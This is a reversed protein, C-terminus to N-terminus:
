PNYIGGLIVSRNAGTVEPLNGPLRNVTQRALWAFAMAEVWDPHISLSETTKSPNGSLQDIREMLYDNKTGGGCVYIHTKKSSLAKVATTISQATLEALTAQIDETTAQPTFSGLISQLWEPSFYDTGTSKPPSLAFFPDTLFLELLSLNIKGSRAWEGNHDYTKGHHTEIWFDMLTNGPGCDFGVVQEAKSNSLYTINAIGGINIIARNETSSHFTAQHFAPVLPAGQGGVSIDRRRFDAVVPIGTLETLLNPDGIQLTYPNPQLPQHCVTQGHNGIALIDAKNLSSKKLLTLVSEAYLKGLITDMEALSQISANGTCIHQIKRRISQPYPQYHSCILKNASDSFDTIVADIGDLSTGSMLGIYLEQV